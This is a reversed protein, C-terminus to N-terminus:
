GEKYDKENWAKIAEEPTMYLWETVRNCCFLDCTVVYVYKGYEDTLRKDLFVNENGCIGCPKLKDM